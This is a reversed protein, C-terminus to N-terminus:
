LVGGLCELGPGELADEGGIALLREPRQLLLVLPGVARPVGAPAEEAANPDGVVAGSEDARVLARLGAGLLITQAQGLRGAM